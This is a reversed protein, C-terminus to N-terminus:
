PWKIHFKKSSVKRYKEGWKTPSKEGKFMIVRSDVKKGCNGVYSHFKELYSSDEKDSLTKHM